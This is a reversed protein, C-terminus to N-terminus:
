SRTELSKMLGGILRFLKKIRSTVENPGGSIYGLDQALLVQTELESLSGRAVLLFQKFERDSGRGAGEALNSPISVAARRMQGTLGYMEERPFSATAQYVLKALEMAEKWVLLDKHGNLALDEM